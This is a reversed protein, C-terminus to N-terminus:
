FETDVEDLTEEVIAVSEDFSYEKDVKGYPLNKEEYSLTELGLLKAKLTYFSQSIDYSSVVQEVMTDVVEKSIDDALYTSEEPYSFNRLKDTEKKYELISNIENEAVEALSVLITNVQQAARTRKERNM